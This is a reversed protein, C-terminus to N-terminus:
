FQRATKLSGFQAFGSEPLRFVMLGVVM